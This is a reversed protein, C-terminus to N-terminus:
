QRMSIMLGGKHAYASLWDVRLRVPEFEELSAAGGADLVLFDRGEVLGVRELERSRVGWKPEHFCIATLSENHITVFKRWYDPLGGPWKKKLAENRVALTWRVCRVEPVPSFRKLVAAYPEGGVERDRDVCRIALEPDPEFSAVGAEPFQALIRSRIGMFEQLTGKFLSGVGRCDPCLQWTKGNDVDLVRCGACTPCTVIQGQFLEDALRRHPGMPKLGTRRSSAAFTEIMGMHWGEYQGPQGCQRCDPTGMGSTGPSCDCSPRWIQQPM